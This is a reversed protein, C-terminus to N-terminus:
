GDTYASKRRFIIKQWEPQETPAAGSERRGRGVMRSTGNQVFELLVQRKGNANFGSKFCKQALNVFYVM